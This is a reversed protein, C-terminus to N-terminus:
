TGYRNYSLQLFKKEMSKVFEEDIKIDPKIAEENHNYDICPKVTEENHNHDTCPKVAEGKKAFNSLTPQIVYYHRIKKKYKSTVANVGRELKIEGSLAGDIDQSYVKLMQEACVPCKVYEYDETEDFGVKNYAIDGFYTYGTKGREVLHHTLLYTLIGVCSKKNEPKVRKGARLAREVTINKYTWGGTDNYFDDSTYKSGDEKVPLKFYGVVHFHPGWDLYADFSGLKLIDMHVGDWYRLRELGANRMAEIILAQLHLKVRGPHPIIVGGSLGILKTYKETTKAKYAKWDFLAYELENQPVSIEIHNLYGMRRGLKRYAQLGGFLRDAIRHGAQAAAYPYCVPCNFNKCHYALLQSPHSGLGTPCVHAGIVSGCKAKKEGLGPIRWEVRYQFPTSSHIAPYLVNPKDILEPEVLCSM